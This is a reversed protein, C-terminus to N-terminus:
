ILPNVIMHSAFTYKQGRILDTSSSSIKKDDGRFVGRVECECVAGCLRRQPRFGHSIMRLWSGSVPLSFLSHFCCFLVVSICSSTIFHKSHLAVRSFVDEYMAQRPIEQGCMTLRSIIIVITTM